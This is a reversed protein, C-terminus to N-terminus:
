RSKVRVCPLSDINISKIGNLLKNGMNYMQLVQWLVENNVRDYVEELDTIGVYVQKKGGHKKMYRRQLSSKIEVGRGQDFPGKSM